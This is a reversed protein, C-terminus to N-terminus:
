EKVYPQYAEGFSIDYKQIGSIKKDQIFAKVALGHGTDPSFNQDFIFNGLSYVIYGGRYEEIDQVVHPHHGVVISAGNDIAVHALKEQIQNHVTQYEVGFHFSVVVIDAEQKAQRIDQALQQTDPFAVSPKADKNGLFQPLLDTYGLFAVKTGKVDRVVATHAESFDKGGGVYNIGNEKLSFLTDEFADKGYDWIHNNAVSVIDVGGYVLGELSKQDSRFSYISGVKTGRMSIPTELNAFTLDATKLFHAVKLFPYTWDNRKEMTSGIARSLMIDGVFLLTADARADVKKENTDRGTSSVEASVPAIASLVSTGNKEEKYLSIKTDGSPTGNKISTFLFYSSPILLVFLFLIVANKM